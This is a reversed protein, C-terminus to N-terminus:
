KQIEQMNQKLPFIAMITSRHVLNESVTVKCNTLYGRVATTFLYDTNFPVGSFMSIEKEPQQKLTFSNIMKLWPNIVEVVIEFYVLQVIIRIKYTCYCAILTTENDTSFFVIHLFLKQHFLCKFSYVQMEYNDWLM